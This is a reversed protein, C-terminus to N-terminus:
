NLEQMMQKYQRQYNGQEPLTGLSKKKWSRKPNYLTKVPVSSINPNTSSPNTVRIPRLWNRFEM